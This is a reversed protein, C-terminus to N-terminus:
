PKQLLFDTQRAGDPLGTLAAFRPDKSRMTTAAAAEVVAVDLPSASTVLFFREFRPADDLEFSFPLATKGAPLTTDSGSAPHHRTVHGSGDTSVVVGFSAGAARIQVQVVDHPKVTAGPELDVTAGHLTQSIVLGPSSGKVLDALDTRDARDAVDDVPARVVFFGISGAVALAPAILFKWATAPPTRTRGAEDLIRAATTRPPLRALVVVDDEALAALAARADTDADDVPREGTRMQELRLSTPRHTM